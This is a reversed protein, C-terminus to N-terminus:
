WWLLLLRARSSSSSLAASRGGLPLPRFKPLPRLVSPALLRVSFLIFEFCVSFCM